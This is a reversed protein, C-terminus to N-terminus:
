GGGKIINYLQPPHALNGEKSPKFFPLSASQSNQSGGCPIACGHHAGIARPDNPGCSTHRTVESVGRRIAGRAGLGPTTLVSFINAFLPKGLKGAFVSLGLAFEFLRVVGNNIHPFLQFALALAHAGGFTARARYAQVGDFFTFIGIRDAEDCQFAPM